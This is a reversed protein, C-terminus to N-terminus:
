LDIRIIINKRCIAHKRNLYCNFLIKQLLLYHSSEDANAQVHVYIQCKFLYCRYVTGVDAFCWFVTHVHVRTDAAFFLIELPKTAPEGCEYQCQELNVALTFVFSFGSLLLQPETLHTSGCASISLPEAQKVQEKCANGLVNTQSLELRGEPGKGIPSNNRICLRCLPLPLGFSVTILWKKKLLQFHTIFGNSFTLM